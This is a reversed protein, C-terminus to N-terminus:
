VAARVGCLELGPVILDALAEEVVRELEPQALVGHGRPVQSPTGGLWLTRMEDSFGRVARGVAARDADTVAASSLHAWGIRSHDVEERMLERLALRVLEHEAQELCTRLFVM